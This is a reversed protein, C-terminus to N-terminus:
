IAGATQSLAADLGAVLRRFSEDVSEPLGFGGSAELSVFGHLASRVARAAHVLEVPDDIGYRRVVDLLADTAEEAAANAELDARDPARLLASYLGPRATAFRRYADAFARLAAGERLSGLSARMSSAAERYSREALRRRLDDLGGVHKYLSPPRVGVRDALASITLADIGHEDVFDAAADTLVEANLGAVPV